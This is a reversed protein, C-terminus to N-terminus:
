SKKAPNVPPWFLEEPKLELAQALKRVTSPHARRHAPKELWSITGQQLGAMKALELQTLAKLERHQRLYLRPTPRLAEPM